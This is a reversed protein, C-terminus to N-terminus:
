PQTHWLRRPDLARIMFRPVGILRVSSCRRSSSRRTLDCVGSTRATRRACRTAPPILKGCAAHRGNFAIQRAASALRAHIRGLNHAARSLGLGLPRRMLACALEGRLQADGVGLTGVPELRVQDLGELDRAIRLEDLLQLALHLRQVAGLWPQRKLFAPRGGSEHGWEQSVFETSDTKMRNCAVPHHQVEGSFTSVLM